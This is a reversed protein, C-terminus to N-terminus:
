RTSVAQLGGAKALPPLAAEGKPSKDTTATLNSAHRSVPQKGSSLLRRHQRLMTAMGAIHPVRGDLLLPMPLGTAARGAVVLLASLQCRGAGLVVPERGARLGHLLLRQSVECLRHAVEEASRVAAWRPAFGAHVLSEPLHRDFWMMNLWQIAPESFHPYGLDAAHTEPQRARDWRLHLGVPDGAITSAAPMDREGVDRIRDGTRTVPGYHTNVTTNRHRRCQRSTLQQMGRAQTLTLGPPQRHQLLAQSAGLAVGLPSSAGLQRDCLQPCTLGVSALIPDVLGGSVDRPAEVPDADFGKIHTRHGATRPASDLPGAHTNRLLAAEVSADTSASPTQKGRTQLVLSITPDLLDRGRVRRLSARRAPVDSGPAALALRNELARGAVGSCAVGVHVCSAVDGGSPRHCCPSVEAGAPRRVTFRM